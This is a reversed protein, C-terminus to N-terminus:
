VLFRHNQGALTLAMGIGASVGAATVGPAPRGRRPDPLWHLRILDLHDVRRSVEAM